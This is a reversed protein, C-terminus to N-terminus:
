AHGNKIYERRLFILGKVYDIGNKAPNIVFGMSYGHCINNYTMDLFAIDKGPACKGCHTCYRMNDIFSNKVDDPQSSM